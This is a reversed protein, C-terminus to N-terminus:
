NREVHKLASLPTTHLTHERQLLDEVSLGNTEDADTAAFVDGILEVEIQRIQTM